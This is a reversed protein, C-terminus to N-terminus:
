RSFYGDVLYGEKDIVIYKDQRGTKMWQEKKKKIKNPNPLTKAFSETIKIDSLKMKM